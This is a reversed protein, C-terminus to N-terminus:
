PAKTDIESQAVFFGLELAEPLSNASRPTAFTREVRVHYGKYDAEEVIRYKDETRTRKVPPEEPGSDPKLYLHVLYNDERGNYACVWAPLQVSTAHM